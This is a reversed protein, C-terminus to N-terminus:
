ALAAISRVSPGFAVLSVVIDAPTGLRSVLGAIVAAVLLRGLASPLDLLISAAVLALGAPTM